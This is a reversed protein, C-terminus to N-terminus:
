SKLAKRLFGCGTADWVHGVLQAAGLFRGKGSCRPSVAQFVDSLAGKYFFNIKREIIFQSKKLM